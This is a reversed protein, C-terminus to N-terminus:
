LGRDSTRIGAGWREARVDVPDVEVRVVGRAIQQVPCRHVREAASIRRASSSRITSASLDCLREM